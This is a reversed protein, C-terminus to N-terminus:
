PGPLYQLDPPSSTMWGPEAGFPLFSSLTMGEEFDGVELVLVLGKGLHVSSEPLGVFGGGTGGVKGLAPAVGVAQVGGPLELVVPSSPYSDSLSM